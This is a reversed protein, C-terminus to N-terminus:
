RARLADRLRERRTDEDNQHLRRGLDDVSANHPALTKLRALTSEAQERLGLQVQAYGLSLLLGVDTPSRDALRLLLRLEKGAEGRAAYLRAEMLDLRNVDAVDAALPRLAEIIRAADDNKGTRLALDLRWQQLPTPQQLGTLLAASQELADGPGVKLELARAALVAGEGDLVGDPYLQKLRAQAGDVDNRRVALEIDRHVFWSTVGPLTVAEDYTAQADDLRGERLLADGLRGVAMATDPLAKRRLATNQTRLAVEDILRIDDNGATWAAKYEGLSQELRGLAALARAAEVHAGKHMPWLVLARNAWALAAVPDRRQRATTALEYAYHADLPHHALADELAAALAMDDRGVLDRDVDHRWDLVATPACWAVCVGLAVVLGMLTSTRVSMAFRKSEVLYSTSLALAVTILFLGAATDTVFDLMDGLVLFALASLAAVEAKSRLARVLADGVLVALALLAGGVVVGHEVLTGLVINEVHTFTLGGGLVPTEIGSAAVSGFAGVGIGWLPHARLATWALPYLAGKSTNWHENELTGMEHLVADHAVVLGVGVAAVVAVQAALMGFRSLTPEREDRGARRVLWVLVAGAAVFALVGGRSLTLLVAAGCVVGVSLFWLSEIRNRVSLGRGLCLFAFGGFIRALHNPNVLPAYLWGSNQRTLGWVGHIDLLKHGFAVLVLLCAGVLLVRWALTRSERRRCREAVVLFLCLAGVLRLVAFASEPPDLSLVSRVQSRADDHLLATTWTVLDTGEPDILNRVFHPLPVLSLVTAVLGLALPAGLWSVRARGGNRSREVVLLALAGLEMVTAGLTVWPHVGGLLQPLLVVPVLALLLSLEGL